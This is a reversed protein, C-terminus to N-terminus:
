LTEHKLKPVQLKTKPALGVLVGEHRPCQASQLCFIFFSCIMSNKGLLKGSHTCSMNNSYNVSPM